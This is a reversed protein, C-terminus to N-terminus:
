SNGAEAEHKKKAKTFEWVEAMGLLVGFFLGSVAWIFFCVLASSASFGHFVSVVGLFILCVVGMQLAMSFTFFLFIKTRRYPINAGADLLKPEIWLPISNLVFPALSYDSKQM